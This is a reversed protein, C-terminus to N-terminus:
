SEQNIYQILEEAFEKIDTATVDRADVPKSKSNSVLTDTAVKIMDIKARRFEMQKEHNRRTEESTRQHELELQRNELMIRQALLGSLNASEITEQTEQTELQENSEM